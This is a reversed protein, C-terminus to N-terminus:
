EDNEVRKRFLNEAVFTLVAGIACGVLGMWLVASLDRMFEALYTLVYSVALLALWVALPPAHKLKLKEIIYNFVSNRFIILVVIVALISGVGISRGAGYVNRWIPFREFIAWVPLACSITVSLVKFVWYLIKNKKEKM